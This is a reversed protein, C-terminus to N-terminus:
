LLFFLISYSKCPPLCQQLEDGEGRGGGWVCVYVFVKNCGHPKCSLLGLSDVM